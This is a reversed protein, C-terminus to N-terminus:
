LLRTCAALAADVARREADREAEMAGSGAPSGGDGLRFSVGGATGSTRSAAGSLSASGYVTRTIGRAPAHVRCRVVMEDGERIREVVEHRWGPGLKEDLAREAASRRPASPADGKRRPRQSITTGEGARQPRDVRSGGSLADMERRSRELMDDFASAFGSLRSSAVGDGIPGCRCPAALTSDGWGDNFRTRRARRTSAGNNPFRRQPSALGGRAPTSRVRGRAGTSGHADSGAGGSAKEDMCDYCGRPMGLRARRQGRDRGPAEEMPLQMLRRYANAMM